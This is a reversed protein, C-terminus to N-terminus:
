LDSAEKQVLAERLAEELQRIYVIELGGTIERDLEAVDARNADPILVKKMHAAKAALIKEKLGGVPLIRGRLTIEGTMAVEGSVATETVASLLATAMTVGASPGDKPVAGEPIHVHIEHKEFFEPALQWAPSLARVCSYATQASEKMVEGLQGTLRLDGRGPMVNVEVELTDGGARTWALGRVIGVAAPYPTEEARVREKGLYSQLQKETIRLRQRKGRLLERAGKRCLDGIRRELGRVGAERTYGRILRRLASDTIEFQEPRLGNRTKQKEVLYNRAIHFKENETYSSIEIMELRDLLPAPITETSNATAIFLVKSLDVPLEVYHDRFHTNQEGDLVELLASATAGHYEPSIKDLEDLLMLPNATGAQRLADVIRGPMAGVYTKRHGRIEAEDRIGGLSIRVYKRHLAEAVSRAISTKGTGPPGVLCLIAGNGEPNLMRVALYELIREKVEQLGYHDRNLIREAEALDAAEESSKAWPLELLTDVYTRVVNAEQSGGPMTKMRAIEKSLKQRVEEPAELAKCREECEEADSLVNDEGLERRILKLQERLVYERQNKNLSGQLREKFERRIEAVAAERALEGALLAYLEESSACDLFHQATKWEWPLEACVRTLLRELDEAELLGPLAKEAFGRHEAGYSRLKEKVVRLMAETAPDEPEAAKRAAEEVEAFLTEQESFLKILRCRSIGEVMVRGMDRPLRALQRIECLTGYEYLGEEDPDLEDPNKQTLLVIKEHQKMATEVANLTKKRSIEFNMIGGPLVVRARM